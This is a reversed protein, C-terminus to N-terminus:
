KKAQELAQGVIDVGVLESWAALIQSSTPGPVDDAVPRKDIANVPLLQFVSNSLFAEDATYADYPQLDEEIIPINLQDALKFIAMRSIDQLINTDKSTRIVGNTVIFFNNTMGETINGDQDLLVVHADPDIDGAELQALVFNGRSYHKAKPDLSSSSYSRVSPIVVPTGTEYCKAFGWSIPVVSVIVTPNMEDSPTGQSGHFPRGRSVTQRVLFDSGTPLLSKNREVVEESISAMEEMSVGCDIRMYKLSRLLRDTHERLMFIKGDFTREVDFVVDGMTFGRDAPHITVQSDPVWEGNFYSVLESM